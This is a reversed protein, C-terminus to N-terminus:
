KKYIYGDLDIPRNQPSGNLYYNMPISIRINSHLLPLVTHPIERADFLVLTGVKPYVKLIENPLKFILEGGDNGQHTTAFLVATLPNSDVHWEYRAGKGNLLNINIGSILDNSCEYKEPLNINILSLIDNEYVAHLQPLKEKIIKGDVVYVEAGDTDNPERSTSSKGDLEVRCSFALAINKIEDFYDKSIIGLEILDFSLLINSPDNKKM